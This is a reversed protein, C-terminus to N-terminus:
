NIPIGMWSYKYFTSKRFLKSTSLYKTLFKKQENLNKSAEEISRNLQNTSMRENADPSKIKELLQKSDAFQTEINGLMLKLEADPKMPTFQKNRYNIFENLANVGDNMENVAKNYLDTFQKTKLYDIERKNYQYRDFLLSNSIGNKELRATFSTLREIENQKEYVTISDNFNFLSRKAVAVTKGQNFEANTLPNNLLQWLPDFPMHSKIMEEPKTKWYANNLQSVYKSNSLYGSAWTPDFLFWSADIRAAVWAHPLNDTAGNQRTYGEIRYARIGAKTIIDTFLAAYGMCVGKRTTLVKDVIENENEYFNISYMNKVDYKINKAVWYFAARVKDNQTTFRLNIYRAISKTSKTSSDPIQLMVNDIASFESAKQAFVGSSFTIILLSIIKFKM